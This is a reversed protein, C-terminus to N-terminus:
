KARAQKLQARTTRLDDNIKDRKVILLDRRAEVGRINARRKIQMQRTTAAQGLASM